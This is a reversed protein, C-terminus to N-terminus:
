PNVLVPVIRVAGPRRRSRLRYVKTGDIKVAQGYRPPKDKLRQWMADYLVDPVEVIRPFRAAILADKFAYLTFSVPVGKSSLAM